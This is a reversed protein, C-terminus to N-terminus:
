QRRWRDIFLGLLIGIGGGILAGPAPSYYGAGGIVAGGVLGIAMLVGVASGRTRRVDGNPAPKENREAM